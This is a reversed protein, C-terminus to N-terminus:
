RVRRLRTDRVEGTVDPFRDARCQLSRAALVQLDEAGVHGTLAQLPPEHVLDLHIDQRHQEAVAGPERGRTQPPDVQLREAARLVSGDGDKAEADALLRFDVASCRSSYLFTVSGALVFGPHCVTKVHWLAM